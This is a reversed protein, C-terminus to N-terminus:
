NYNIIITKVIYVPTVCMCFQYKLINVFSDPLQEKLIPLKWLIWKCLILYLNEVM